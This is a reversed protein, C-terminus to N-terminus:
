GRKTMKEGDCPVAYNGRIRYLGGDEGKYVPFWALGNYALRDTLTFSEAKGTSLNVKEKTEM